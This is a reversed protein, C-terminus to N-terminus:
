SGGGLPSTLNASDVPDELGWRGAKRLGRQTLIFSKSGWNLGRKSHQECGELSGERM